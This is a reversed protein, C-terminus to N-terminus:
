NKVIRISSNDSHLLYIGGPVETLDIRDFQNLKGSLIEEGILNFLKYDYTGKRQFEINLYTEVPNPYIKGRIINENKLTVLQNLFTTNETFPFANNAGVKFLYIHSGGNLTFNSLGTSNSTGVGIFGGDTTALIQGVEDKGENNISNFENMWYLNQSDFYAYIMDYDDQYSSANIYQYAVAVKDLFANYEVQACKIKGGNMELTYQNVLNGNIDFVGFYASTKTSTENKGVLFIKSNSMSIDSILYNGILDSITDTWIQNGNGDIEMLFGKYLSSDSIYYQGAIVFHDNKREISTAFDEGNSGWRKTWLTDGFKDTRIVYIDSNGNTTPLAEGVMVVGSDATLVADNIKEWSSPLNFNKVWQQNGSIDTKILFADFDGQGFSNSIGTILFGDDPIYLVRKGLDSEAGGYSKSWTYNGLKDVALLFAQSHEAFSGSSGSLIYSSDALQIIGHGEDFGSGSYLKYFTGQGFSFLVFLQLIFVILIRM